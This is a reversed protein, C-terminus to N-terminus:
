KTVGKVIITLRSHRKIIIGRAFHSGHSKDMRKIKSGEDIRFTDFKLSESSLNYNNKAVSVVTKIAKVLIRASLTNTLTLKTIAVQPSLKKVSNALLRIKRPSIKINKDIYRCYKIEPVIIAPSKAIDSKPSVTEKIATKKVVSKKIIEKAM